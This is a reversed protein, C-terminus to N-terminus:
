KLGGMVNVTELIVVISNIISIANKDDKQTENSMYLVLDKLLDPLEVISEDEQLLKIDNNIRKIALDTKDYLEISINSSDTLLANKYDNLVKIYDFRNENFHNTSLQRKFRNKIDNEIRKTRHTLRITIIIGICSLVCGIISVFLSWKEM